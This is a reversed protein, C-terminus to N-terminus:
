VHFNDSKVCDDITAEPYKKNPSFVEVSSIFRTNGRVLTNRETYQYYLDRDNFDM